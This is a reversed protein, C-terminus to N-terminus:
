LSKLRLSAKLAELALRMCAKAWNLPTIPSPAYYRDGNKEVLTNYSEPLSLEPVPNGDAGVDGAGTIQCLARNFHAVQRHYDKEDGSTRYLIGYCQSMWSDFFWEAETDPILRSARESFADQTSHDDTRSDTEGTSGALWFNGSQYADQFYRLVGRERVLQEVTALVARKDEIALKRLQCPFVLNLLAADAERYKVDSKPYDPSEFPVQKRIRSYGREILSELKGNFLVEKDTKLEAQDAEVQFVERWYPVQFVTQWIELSSTVLAISSTNVREIEEWAGADEQSEFKLADWYTPLRLLFPWASDPVDQSAWERSLLAQGTALAVLAVADNQKHNWIQDRGGVQVDNFSPSRGDFRIHLVNMAGDKEYATQPRQIIADLRKLQAPTGFYELLGQLVRKAEDRTPEYENLGFYAWVSDRVWVADYHTKDDGEEARSSACVRDLPNLEISLACAIAQELLVLDQLSYATKLFGAILGSAPTLSKSELVDM